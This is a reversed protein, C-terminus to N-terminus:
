LVAIVGGLMILASGWLKTSSLKEKLILFAFLLTIPISLNDLGLLITTDKTMTFAIFYSYTAIFYFLVVMLLYKLNKEIPLLLEDRYKKRALIYVTAITVSFFQQGLNFYFASHFSVPGMHMRRLIAMIMETRVTEKTGLYTMTASLIFFGAQVLTLLWLKKPIKKWRVFITETSSPPIAALSIIFTGTCLVCLGLILSWKFPDGLAIYGASALLMGFQSIPIVLSVDYGNLLKESVIMYGLFSFAILVYLPVNQYTYNMILEHLAGLDHQLVFVRFFYIGLFGLYSFVNVLFFLIFKNPFKKIWVNYLCLTLISILIFLADLARVERPASSRPRVCWFQGVWCASQLCPALHRGLLKPWLWAVGQWGQV